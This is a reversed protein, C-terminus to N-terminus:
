LDTILLVYTVFVGLAFAALVLLGLLIDDRPKVLTDSTDHGQVRFFGWAIFSLLLGVLISLLLPAAHVSPM